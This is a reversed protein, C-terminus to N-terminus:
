IFKLFFKIGLILFIIGIVIKIHERNLRHSSYHGALYGATIASISVTVLLILNLKCVRAYVTFAIFSSFPVVFATVRAVLRPDYGVFYLIPSIIGGGGVGLLGSLFGGLGGAISFFPVNINEKFRKKKRPIFTMIGVFLLFIAFAIGIVRQNIINSVYAGLPAFLISIIVMPVLGNFKLYGTKLNYITLSGTALFNVFLGTARAVKFSIGTFVLIPILAVASGLGGLAFVFSLIFTIIAIKALFM